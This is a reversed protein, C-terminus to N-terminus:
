WRRTRVSMYGQVSLAMGEAHVCLTKANLNRVNEVHILEFVADPAPKLLTRM